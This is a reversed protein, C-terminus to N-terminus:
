KAAIQNGNGPTQSALEAGKTKARPIYFDGSIGAFRRFTAGM